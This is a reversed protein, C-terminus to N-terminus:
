GCAPEAGPTLPVADGMQAVDFRDGDGGVDFFESGSHGRGRDFEM